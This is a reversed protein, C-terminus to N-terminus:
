QDQKGNEFIWVKESRVLFVTMNLLLVPDRHIKKNTKACIQM